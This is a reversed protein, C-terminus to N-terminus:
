SADSRLVDGAVQEGDKFFLFTPRANIKYKELYEGEGGVVDACVKCLKFKKAENADVNVTTVQASFRRCLALGREPDSSTFIRCM